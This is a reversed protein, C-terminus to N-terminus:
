AASWARTSSRARARLAAHLRRRLAAGRHAERCQARDWPTFGFAEDASLTAPHLPAPRLPFPQTPALTEGPVAGAQPM